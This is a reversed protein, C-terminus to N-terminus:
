PTPEETLASRLASLAAEQRARWANEEDLGARYHPPDEDYRDLAERARSLRALAADRERTLTDRTVALDAHTEDLDARAQDREVTLSRVAEEAQRYATEMQDVRTTLSRVQERAEDRERTLDGARCRLSLIEAGRALLQEPLAGLLKEAADREAMVSRLAATLRGVPCNCPKDRGAGDWSAPAMTDCNEHHPLRELDEPTLPGATM